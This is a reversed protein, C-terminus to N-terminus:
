IGQILSNAEEPIMDVGHQQRYKNELYQKTYRWVAVSGNSLGVVTLYVDIPSTHERAIDSVDTLQKLRHTKLDVLATVLGNHNYILAYHRYRSDQEVRHHRSLDWEKPLVETSKSSQVIPRWHSDIIVDFVHGDYFLLGAPARLLLCGREAQVTAKKPSVISSYRAEGGVFAVIATKGVVQLKFSMKGPLHCGFAPLPTESASLDKMNIILEGDNNSFVATMVEPTCKETIIKGRVRMMHKDYIVADQFSSVHSKKPLSSTSPTEPSETFDLFRNGIFVGRDNYVFPGNLVRDKCLCDFDSPLSQNIFVPCGLTPEFVNTDVKLYGTACLKWDDGQSYEMDYCPCQQLLVHRMASEPIFDPDAGCLSVIDKFNLYSCIEDVLEPPIQLM